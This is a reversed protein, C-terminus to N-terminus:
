ALRLQEPESSVKKTLDVSEDFVASVSGVARAGLDALPGNGPGGGGGMWVAVDSLQKKLAETAGAWTGGREHDSAVVVTTTTLAYVLKNRAMASAPTFGASPIQQSVLCVSGADIAGLMESTQLKKQLSDALVGVVSGGAMFAANMAFQDVGRAGGSVVPLGEAVARRAVEEAFEKGEPIVNRSGVIGIGPEQLLGLNGVAYLIPPALDGLKPRYAAPYREDDITVVHIGRRELDA